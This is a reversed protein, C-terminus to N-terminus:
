IIPSNKFLQVSRVLWCDTMDVLSCYFVDIKYSHINVLSLMLDFSLDTGLNLEGSVNLICQPLTYRDEEHFRGM